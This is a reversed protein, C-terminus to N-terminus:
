IPTEVQHPSSEEWKWFSSKEQSLALRPVKLKTVQAPRGEMTACCRQEQDRSIASGATKVGRDLQGLNNRDECREISWPRTAQGARFAAKRCSPLFRQCHCRVIGVYSFNTLPCFFFIGQMVLITTEAWTTVSVLTMNSRGGHSLFPLWVTQHSPVTPTDCSQCGVQWIHWYDMRFNLFAQFVM